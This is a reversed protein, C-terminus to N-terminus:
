SVNKLTTEVLEEADKADRPLECILFQDGIKGHVEIGKQRNRIRFSPKTVRDFGRFRSMSTKGLKNLKELTSADVDTDLKYILKKTSGSEKESLIQYM